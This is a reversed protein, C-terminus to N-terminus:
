NGERKARLLSLLRCLFLISSNVKDIKRDIKLRLKILAFYNIRQFYDRLQNESLILLIFEVIYYEFVNYTISKVEFM